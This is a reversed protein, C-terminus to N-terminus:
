HLRLGIQELRQDLDRGSAPLAPLLRRAHSVLWSGANPLVDFGVNVGLLKHWERRRELGFHELTDLGASGREHAAIRAVLDHAEFLGGNMSQGGFPSTVHAADGALWVRGEGFSRALRREFHMVSGWDLVSSDDAFWPAREALLTQLRDVDPVRDLGSDLQFSWRARGNPLPVMSSVLEDGFVLEVDGAASSTPFEFISFSETGGVALSEIGLAARVGSDYGDAGIVFSARVISSEVPQWESYQVPSGLRVLERRMVRVDVGEGDQELTTAQYPARPRIEHELLAGLLATELASQAVALAPEPLELTAVRSKDVFVSIERILRGSELLREAVGEEQLLRLSRPHLITAYGRGFGQWHQELLLVDLGRRAACLAAFLGVPGAGVVLLQTSAGPLGNM